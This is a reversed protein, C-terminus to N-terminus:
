DLNIIGFRTGQLLLTLMPCLPCVQLLSDHISNKSNTRTKLAGHAVNDLEARPHRIQDFGTM